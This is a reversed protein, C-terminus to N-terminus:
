VTPIEDGATQSATASKVVKVVFNQDTLAFIGYKRLFATNERKNANEASRSGKTSVEAEAGLKNFYTVAQKTAVAFQGKTALASTYINM